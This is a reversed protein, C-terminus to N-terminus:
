YVNFDFVQRRRMGRIIRLVWYSEVYKTVFKVFDAVVFGKERQCM